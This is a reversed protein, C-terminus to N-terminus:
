FTASRSFNAYEIQWLVELRRVMNTRERSKEVLDRIFPLARFLGIDELVFVVTGYQGFSHAQGYPGLVFAPLELDPLGAQLIRHVIRRTLASTPKTVVRLSHNAGHKQPTTLTM